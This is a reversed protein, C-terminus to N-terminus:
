TWGVMCLVLYALPCSCCAPVSVAAAASATAPAPRCRPPVGSGSGARARRGAPERWDDRHCPFWRKLRAAAVEPRGFGLAFHWGGADRNCLGRSYSIMCTHRWSLAALALDPSPGGSQRQWCSMGTAHQASGVATVQLCAGLATLQPLSAPGGLCSSTALRQRCLTRRQALTDAQRAWCAWCLRRRRCLLM